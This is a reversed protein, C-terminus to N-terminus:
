IKKADKNRQKKANRKQGKAQADVVALMAEARANKVILKTKKSIMQLAGSFVLYISLRNFAPLILINRVGIVFLPM